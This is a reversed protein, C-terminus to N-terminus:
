RHRRNHKLRYIDRSARNEERILRHREGATVVGDAKARHEDHRLKAQERELRAAESPTLSGNRIGEAIRRQEHRERKNIYPTRTQAFGASTLGLIMLATTLAIMKKM